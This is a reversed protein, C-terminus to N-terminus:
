EIQRIGQESQTEYDLNANKLATRLWEFEPEDIVKITDNTRKLLPTDVVYFFIEDGVEKKLLLAVTKAMVQRGEEVDGDLNEDFIISTNVRVNFTNLLYIQSHKDVNAVRGYLGEGKTTLEDHIARYLGINSSLLLRLVAEQSRSSDFKLSHTLSM